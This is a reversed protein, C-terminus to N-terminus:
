TAIIEGSSMQVPNHGAHAPRASEISSELVRCAILTRHRYTDARIGSAPNHRPAGQDQFSIRQVTWGEFAAVDECAADRDAKIVIPDHLGLPDAQASPRWRVTVTM